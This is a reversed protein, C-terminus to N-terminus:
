TKNKKKKEERKGLAYFSVVSIRSNGTHNAAESQRTAGTRVERGRKCCETSSQEGTTETTARPWEFVGFAEGEGCVGAMWGQKVAM